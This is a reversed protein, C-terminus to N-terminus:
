DINSMTKFKIIKAMLNISELHHTKTPLHLEQLLLLCHRLMDEMLKLDLTNSM